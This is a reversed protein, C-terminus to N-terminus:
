AFIITCAGTIMSSSLSSVSRRLKVTVSRTFVFVAVTNVVTTVHSPTIMLCDCMLVLRGPM